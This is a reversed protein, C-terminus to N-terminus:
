ITVHIHYLDIKTIDECLAFTNFQQTQLVIILMISVVILTGSAWM